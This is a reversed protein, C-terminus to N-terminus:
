HSAYEIAFPDMEGLSFPGADESDDRRETLPQAKPGHDQTPAGQTPSGQPTEPREVLAPTSEAQTPAPATSSEEEVQAAERAPAPSVQVAASRDGPRDRREAAEAAFEDRVSKAVKRVYSPDREIAEAIRSATMKPAVRLIAAVQERVPADQPFDPMASGDDEGEDDDEDAVAASRTPMPSTSGGQRLDSLPVVRERPTWTAGPEPKSTTDQDVTVEPVVARVAEAGAVDPAVDPALVTSATTDVDTSSVQVPVTGETVDPEVDSPASSRAAVTVGAGPTTGGTRPTSEAEAQAQAHAHQVVRHRMVRLLEELVLALIVPAAAHLLKATMVDPAAQWNGWASISVGMLMLTWPYWSRLGSLTSYIVGLSGVFQLGDVMIPVLLALEPAIAADLALDHLGAYSLVMACIAIVMASGLSAWRIFRESRATLIGQRGSTAAEEIPGTVEGAVESTVLGPAPDLASEGSPEPQHQVESTRVGTPVAPAAIATAM